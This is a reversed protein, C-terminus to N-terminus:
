QQQVLEPRTTPCLDLGICRILKRGSWLCVPMICIHKLQGQQRPEAADALPEPQSQVSPLYLLPPLAALSSAPCCNSYLPLARHPGWHLPIDTRSPLRCYAARNSIHMFSVCHLMDCWIVSLSLSLLLTLSLCLSRRFRINPVRICVSIAAVAAAALHMHAFSLSVALSLPFVPLCPCCATLKRKM